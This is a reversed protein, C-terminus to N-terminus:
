LTVVNIQQTKIKRKQVEHVDNYKYADRVYPTSLSKRYQEETEYTTKNHKAKNM